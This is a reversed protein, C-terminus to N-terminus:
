TPSVMAYRLSTTSVRTELLRGPDPRRVMQEVPVLWFPSITMEKTLVVNTSRRGSFGHADGSLARLRDFGVVLAVLPACDPNGAARMGQVVAIGVEDIHHQRDPLVLEAEAEGREPQHLCHEGAREGAKL